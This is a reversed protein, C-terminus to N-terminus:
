KELDKRMIYDTQMDDGLVFTHTGTQYFGCRRYFHLAKENKEWVGLWIYKKKRQVAIGVAKDMLYRGAGAGQFDKCVYIREIELSQEDHIDTQAAAENLKLYGALSGNWYLFYFAAATDSLEMRLKEPAFAKDLYATMNETTNVDAFTEFFTKRSFSQLVSLDKMTCQRFLAIVKTQEEGYSTLM